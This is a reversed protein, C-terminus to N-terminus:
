PRRKQDEVINNWEDSSKVEKWATKRLSVWWEEQYPHGPSGIYGWPKATPPQVYPNLIEVLTPHVPGTIHVVHPDAMTELCLGERDDSSHRAYTGLGQANWKLDLSVSDNVFHANLADQDCYKANKMSKGLHKLSCINVRAGALDILIVGANFYPRREIGDHGMPHGVSPVAAVNKGNLDTDRLASISKRVLVDADLYLVREVPLIDFMDLKAWVPGMEKALGDHPLDLFRLTVRDGHGILTQELKCKDELLLGCDVVYITIRGPTNEILSYITVAAGMVYAFDVTLAVNIGYEMAENIMGDEVKTGLLFGIRM